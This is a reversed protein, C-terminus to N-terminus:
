ASPQDRRLVGFAWRRLVPQYMQRLRGQHHWRGVHVLGMGIADQTDDPGPMKEGLIGLMPASTLDGTCDEPVWTFGSTVMPEFLEQMFRDSDFSQDRRQASSPAAQEKKTVSIVLRGHEDILWKWTPKWYPKREWSAGSGLLKDLDPLSM